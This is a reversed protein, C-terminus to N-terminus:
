LSALYAHSHSRLRGLSKMLPKMLRSWISTKAPYSLAYVRMANIKEMIYEDSTKLTDVLGLPLADKALWHEGTSVKEIDLQTRHGLVYDKFVTHIKDLDEQFKQRGKNTNEGFVTLTRKYEGSTVLEVDINKKQLFRYFNPLQAVVGISGVIAFPAAIIHHAVAAMLYGGSAAVHDISATISINKDRLRQIQAAALGYGAVSGGPSDIRLLVEDKDQAVLLIATILDRLETVATAKLDGVFDIVFLIPLRSKKDKKSKEKVISQYKKDDLDHIMHKKLDHYHRNLSRIDIIDGRKRKGRAGVIGFVVVLIAVVMTVTKILFLGYNSLFEM